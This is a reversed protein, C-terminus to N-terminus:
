ARPGGGEASDAVAGLATSISRIEALLRGREGRAAANQVELARLRGESRETVTRATATAEAVCREAEARATRLIEERQEHAALLVASTQEGIRKISSEVEHAPLSQGRVEALERDLAALERELDGVYEDVAVPDYGRRALPFRLVLHGEVTDAENGGSALRRDGSRAHQDERGPMVGQLRQRIPGLIRQAKSGGDLVLSQKDYLAM